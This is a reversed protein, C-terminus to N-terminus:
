EDQENANDKEIIRVEKTGFQNIDWEVMHTGDAIQESLEIASYFTAEVIFFGVVAGIPLGMFGLLTFFIGLQVPSLENAPTTFFSRKSM